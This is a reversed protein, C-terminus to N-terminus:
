PLPGNYGILVVSLSQSGSTSNGVARIPLAPVSLGGTGSNMPGQVEVGGISVWTTGDDPSVQIDVSTAISAWAFAMAPGGFWQKAEGVPAPPGNANDLLVLRQGIPTM